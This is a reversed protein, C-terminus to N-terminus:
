DIEDWEVMETNDLTVVMDADMLFRAELDVLSDGRKHDRHGDRPDVEVRDDEPKHLEWQGGARAAEVVQFWNPNVYKKLPQGIFLGTEVLKARIDAVNHYQGSGQMMMRYMKVENEANALRLRLKRNVADDSRDVQPDTVETIEPATRASTLEKKLNAIERARSKLIAEHQQLQILSANKISTYASKLSNLELQIAPLIECEDSMINVKPELRKNDNELRMASDKQIKFAQTLSKIQDGLQSREVEFAKTAKECKEAIEKEKKEAGHLKAKLDTLQTVHTSVSTALKAELRKNDEELRSVKTGIIKITEKLFNNKGLLEDREQELQKVVHEHKEHSEKEKETAKHLKSEADLLM